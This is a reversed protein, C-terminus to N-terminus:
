NAVFSTLLNLRQAQEAISDAEKEFTKTHREAHGGNLTERKKIAQLADWTFEDTM